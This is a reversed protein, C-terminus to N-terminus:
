DRGKGSRTGFYYGVLSGGFGVAPPLITKAWDIVNAIAEPGPLLLVIILFPLIMVAAILALLGRTIPSVIEAWQQSHPEIAEKIKVKMVSKLIDESSIMEEPPRPPPPQEVAQTDM